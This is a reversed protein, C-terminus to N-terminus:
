YYKTRGPCVPPAPPTVARLLCSHGCRSIHGVPLAACLMFVYMMFFIAARPAVVSRRCVLAAGGAPVGLGGLLDM